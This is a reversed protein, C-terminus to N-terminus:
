RASPKGQWRIPVPIANGHAHMREACNAVPDLSPQQPGTRPAISAFHQEDATVDVSGSYLVFDTAFAM